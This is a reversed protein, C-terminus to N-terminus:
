SFGFHLHYVLEKHFKPHLRHFDPLSANRSGVGVGRQCDLGFEYDFALQSREDQQKEAAIFNISRLNAEAKRLKEEM